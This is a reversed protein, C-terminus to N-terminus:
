INKGMLGDEEGTSQRCLQRCLSNSATTAASFIEASLTTTVRVQVLATESRMEVDESNQCKQQYTCSCGWSISLRDNNGNATYKSGQVLAGDPDTINAVEAHREEKLMMLSWTKGDETSHLGGPTLRKSPTMGTSSFMDM